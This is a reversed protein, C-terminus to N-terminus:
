TIEIKHTIDNGMVKIKIVCKFVINVSDADMYINYETKSNYKINSDKKTGEIIIEKINNIICLKNYGLLFLIIKKKHNKITDIM